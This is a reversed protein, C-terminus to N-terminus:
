VVSSRPFSTFCLTMICSSPVYVGTDNPPHCGVVGVASADPAIVPADTAGVNAAFGALM